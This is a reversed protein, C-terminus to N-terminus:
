NKKVLNIREKLEGCGQSFIFNVWILWVFDNLTLGRFTTPYSPLRVSKISIRKM